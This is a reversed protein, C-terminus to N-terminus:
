ELLRYSGSMHPAKPWEPLNNFSKYILSIYSNYDVAWYKTQASLPLPCKVKEAEENHIKHVM